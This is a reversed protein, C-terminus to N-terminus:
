QRPLDPFLRGIANMLWSLPNNGAFVLYKRCSYNFFFVISAAIVRALLYHLDFLGALAVMCVSNLLLGIGSIALFAIFELHRKEISGRGFIWASSFLYNLISGATFSVVTAPLYGLGLGSVLLACIGFDLAFSVASVIVSRLFARWSPLNKHGLTRGRNSGRKRLHKRGHVHAHPHPRAQSSSSM